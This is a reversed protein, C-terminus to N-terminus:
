RGTEEADDPSKGNQETTVNRSLEKQSENFAEATRKESATAKQYEKPQNVVVQPFPINVDYKDFLIKMERNMDRGLQVRDGEKCQAIIRINVASDGLSLVGKYYPGDTIAPLRKRINPLEKQLITEVRELSEGYDIGVDCTCISNQRTMNIVGSVLASNCIIKVNNGGDIIKTTRVGIEEVRGRWDDVMVIDGVQFDGEFIIFLGSLIDSIISKAGLGIVVSLIGASTWLTTADAGLFSLCYYLLVVVSLYKVSSKLLRCITEGRPSVIRSLLTLLQELIMVLVIGVCIILFCATLAFVNRGRQWQASAVYSIISEDSFLSSRFIYLVSIALAFIGLLINLVTRTKGGATQEAWPIYNGSWREAVARTDKVATEASASRAKGGSATQEAEKGTERCLGQRIDADAFMVLLFDMLSLLVLCLGAAAAAAPMRNAMLRAEPVAVFLYNSIGEACYAFCSGGNLRVYNSYGDRLEADTIGYDAAPKGVMKGDAIYSINKTEKDVAFVFGGSGIRIRGIVNALETAALADQLETPVVAMQLFGDTEGASNQMLVGIYQHFEGSTEDARAEQIVYPVGQLLKRFAFSQDDPNESIRFNVYSSDSVVEKGDRDFILLYEVGLARSLTQMDTRNWLAPNRSLIGAATKAKNLYRRNYEKTLESVEDKNDQMSSVVSEAATRNSANRLSLAFLTQLYFAATFFVATGLVASTLIKRRLQVHRYLRRGDENRLAKATSERGCYFVYVTAALFVILFAAFMGGVTLANSSLIESEPVLCLITTNEAKVDRVGAYYHVGSISLFGLYGDKLTDGSLGAAAADTGVLAEEPHYLISGDTDSVAMTFGSLGVSIKSLVSAPSTTNEQLLLLESPDNEIVIIEDSANAAAYYRRTGDKTEVTFPAFTEPALLGSYAPDSFDVPTDQAKARVAGNRGMVFLNTINLQKKLEKLYADSEQYAADHDSM